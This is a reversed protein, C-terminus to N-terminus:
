ITSTLIIYEKHLPTYLLQVTLEIAAFVKYINYIYIIFIRLLRLYFHTMFNLHIQRNNICKYIINNNNLNATSKNINECM